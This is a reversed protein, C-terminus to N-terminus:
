ALGGLIAITFVRAPHEAVAVGAKFSVTRWQGEDMRAALAALDAMPTGSQAAAILLVAAIKKAKSRQYSNPM